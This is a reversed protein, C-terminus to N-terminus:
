SWTMTLGCMEKEPDEGGYCRHVASDLGNHFISRPSIDLTDAILHPMTQWQLASCVPTHPAGPGTTPREGLISANFLTQTKFRLSIMFMMHHPIHFITKETKLPSFMPAPKALALLRLFLAARGQPQLIFPFSDTRRGASCAM